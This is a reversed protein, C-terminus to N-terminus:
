RGVGAQPIAPVGAMPPATAPGADQLRSWQQQWHRYRALVAPVYNQTEAFPPIRRGHRIVAGEGANYGALALRLDGDFLDLLFRLYRIGGELNAAPDWPDNVGYRRATAPMLQMLGMAGAPSIARPQFGSEVDIVALVLPASVRHRQALMQVMPLLHAPPLRRVASRNPPPMPYPAVDREIATSPRPAFRFVATASADLPRTAYTPFGSASRSMYVTDGIAAPVPVAWLLPGTAVMAAQRKMRYVSRM